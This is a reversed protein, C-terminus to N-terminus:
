RGNEKLKEVVWGKESGEDRIWRGEGGRGEGGRGKREDSGDVVRLILDNKEYWKESQGLTGAFEKLM